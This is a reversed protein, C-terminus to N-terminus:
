IQDLGTIEPQQLSGARKARLMPSRKRSICFESNASFHKISHAPMGTRAAAFVVPKAFPEDTMAAVAAVKAEM